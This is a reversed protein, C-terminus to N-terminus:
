VVKFAGRLYALLPKGADIYSIDLLLYSSLSRGEAKEIKLRDVQATM